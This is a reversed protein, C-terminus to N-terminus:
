AKGKAPRKRAPTKPADATEVVPSSKVPVALGNACLEAGEADPVTISEGPAPWDAGDRTGSIKVVMQVKM